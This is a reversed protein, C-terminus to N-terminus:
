LDVVTATTPDHTGGLTTVYTDRVAEIGRKEVVSVFPDIWTAFWSWAAAFREHFAVHGGSASEAVDPIFFFRQTAGPLDSDNGPAGLHTGGVRISQTLSDGFAQHVAAVVGANGSMDVLAATNSGAATNESGAATNESGAATNESGAATNESGAATNESSGLRLADYTVVRDYCGLSAVFEANASSTLGVLEPRDQRRAMSAAFSVATKSSASAVLVRQAGFDDNDEFEASLMWGTMFLAWFVPQLHRFREVSAPDQSTRYYRNYWPHLAARHPMRDSFTSPSVDGPELVLHGGMPLFGFIEEGVPLDACRSDAVTAFGWAPVIGWGPRSAPFFSWYGLLHGAAAYSLNNSTLGIRDVTVRVQGDNLEATAAASPVLEVNGIASTDVILDTNPM